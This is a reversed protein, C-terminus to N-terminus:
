LNGKGFKIILEVEGKGMNLTKAIDSITMNQDYLEKIKDAMPHSKIYKKNKYTGQNAINEDIKIDIKNSMSKKKEIIEYLFLLQRQKEDFRKFIEESMLNLDDIALDAQDITEKIQKIHNDIDSIPTSNSYKNIKLISSIIVTFGLIMIIIFIWNFIDM